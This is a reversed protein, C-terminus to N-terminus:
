LKSTFQTSSHEWDLETGIISVLGAVHLTYKTNAALQTILAVKFGTFPDVVAAMIPAYPTLTYNAPNSGSDSTLALSFVLDVQTASTATARELAIKPLPPGGACEPLSAGSFGMQIAQWRCDISPDNDFPNGGRNPPQILDFLSQWQEMASNTYGLWGKGVWLNRSISGFAYFDAQGIASLGLSNRPEGGNFCAIGWGMAMMMGEYNFGVLRALGGSVLVYKQGFYGYARLNPELNLPDYAFYIDPYFGAYQKKITNFIIFPLPNSVGVQTGKALIDGAQGTTFLSQAGDPVAPSALASRYITFKGERVMRAPRELTAKSVAFVVRAEQRHVRDALSTEYEPTGISPRAAFEESMVTWADDRLNMQVDYDGAVLGGSLILHGDLNGDYPGGIAIHHVGGHYGGISVLALTVPKGDQDVLHDGPRLKQARALKGDPLLFPQDPSCIVEKPGDPTDYVLYSMLPQFGDPGTGASFSVTGNTWDLNVSKGSAKVNAVLVEDGKGLTYIEKVGGPVAVLTDNAFCSCCCYCQVLDWAPDQKNLKTCETIVTGNTFCQIAGTTANQCCVDIVPAYMGKPACDDHYLQTEMFGDCHNPLAGIPDCTPDFGKAHLKSACEQPNYGM